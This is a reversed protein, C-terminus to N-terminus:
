LSALSRFIRNSVFCGKTGNFQFTVSIHFNFNLYRKLPTMYFDPNIHQSDRTKIPARIEM